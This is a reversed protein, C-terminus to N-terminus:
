EDYFEEILDFNGIAIGCEKAAEKLTKLSFGTTRSLRIKASTYIGYPRSSYKKTRKTKGTQHFKYVFLVQTCATNIFCVADKPNLSKRVPSPLSDYLTMKRFDGHEVQVLNVRICPASIRKNALAM